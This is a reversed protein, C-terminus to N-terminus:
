LWNLRHNVGIRLQHVDFGANFRATYPGARVAVTRDLDAYLYESKVTWNPMVAYELGAGVVYGDVPMSRGGAASFGGFSIAGPIAVPLGAPLNKVPLPVSFGPVTVGGSVGIESVAWGGTAYALLPGWAYGLRGRLTAFYTDTGLGGEASFGLKPLAVSSESRFSAYGGDAEIGLVVGGGLIHPPLQINYGVTGGGAFGGLSTRGSVTPLPALTEGRFAGEAAAGVQVGVYAGSWGAPESAPLSPRLVTERFPLDAANALTVHALLAPIVALFTKM